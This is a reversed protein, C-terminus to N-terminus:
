NFLLILRGAFADVLGQSEEGQTGNFTLWSDISPVGPPKKGRQYTGTNLDNNEPKWHKHIKDTINRHSKRTEIIEREARVIMFSDRIPEAPKIGGLFM